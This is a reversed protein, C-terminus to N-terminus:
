VTRLPHGPQENTDAKSESECEDTERMVLVRQESLRGTATQTHKLRNSHDPAIDQWTQHDCTTQQERKTDVHVDGSVQTGDSQYGNGSAQHELGSHTNRQFVRHRRCHVSENPNKNEHESNLASSVATGVGAAGTRSVSWNNRNCWYSWNSRNHFASWYSRNSCHLSCWRLLNRGLFHRGLLWSRLRGELESELLGRLCPAKKTGDLKKDTRFEQSPEARWPTHPAPPPAKARPASEKTSEKDPLCLFYM